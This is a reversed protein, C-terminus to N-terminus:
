LTDCNWWCFSDLFYFDIHKEADPDCIEAEAMM